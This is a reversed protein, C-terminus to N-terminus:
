RNENSVEELIIGNFFGGREEAKERAVELVDEFDIGNLHTFAFLVELMDAAEEECPNEIFEDAEELIKARLGEMHEERGDVQRWICTRGSETIIEPIFDRVLKM